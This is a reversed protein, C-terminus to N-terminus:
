ILSLAHILLAEADEKTRKSSGKLNSENDLKTASSRLKNSPATSTNYKKNANKSHIVVQKRAAREAKLCAGTAPEKSFLHDFFGM